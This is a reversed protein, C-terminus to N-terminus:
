LQTIVIAKRKFNKLLLSSIYDYIIYVVFCLLYIVASSVIMHLLMVFINQQVAWQVNIYRIFRHHALFVTFSAASLKNIWKVCGINIRKFLVFLLIAEIVVLPNCYIWALNVDSGRSESVCAWITILVVVGSLAMGWFLPKVKEIIKINKRIYMGMYYMMIFNVVQYGWQSGYMGVSSLGLWEYNTIDGFVEVITPYVSFLLFILSIFNANIKDYLLNLYPSLLYVVIYLIAFYNAPVLSFMLGKFSLSANIVGTSWNWVFSFVMVQLILELPKQLTTRNSKCSFYGSILMFLNVACILMSELLMLGYYNISSHDVFRLGGGITQNNYHLIIVGLMSLIRLLEINSEREGKPM